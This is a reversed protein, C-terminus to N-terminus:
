GIENVPRDIFTLVSKGKRLLVVDEWTAHDILHVSM